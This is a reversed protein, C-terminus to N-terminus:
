KKPLTSVDESSPHIGRLELLEDKPHKEQLSERVLEVQLLGLESDVVVVWVVAGTAILPNPTATSSVPTSSTAGIVGSTM